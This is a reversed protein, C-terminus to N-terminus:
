VDRGGVRHRQPCGFVFIPGRVHRQAVLGFRGHDFLQHRRNYIRCPDSGLAPQSELRQVRRGRRGGSRRRISTRGIRVVGVRPRVVYDNGGACCALRAVLHGAPGGVWRACPLRDRGLSHFHRSQRLGSVLLIILGLLALQLDNDFIDRRHQHLYVGLMAFLLLLMVFIGAMFSYDRRGDVLGLDQLLLIHELEVQDGRRVIIQGERIRIDAVSRVAEQRAREIKEPSPILNPRMVSQVIATMLERRDDPTDRITGHLGITERERDLDAEGIRRRSMIEVASNRVVAEFEDLERGTMTALSVLAEHSVALDLESAIEDLRAVLEDVNVHHEIPNSGQGHDSEAVLGADETAAEDFIREDRFAAFVAAVREEARLAEAPNIEWNVPDLEAERLAQRAADDGCNNVCMAIVVAANCWPAVVDRSAVNAWQLDM